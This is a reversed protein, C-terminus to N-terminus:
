LYRKIQGLVHEVAEELTYKSTDVEAEPYDPAEDGGPHPGAEQQQPRLGQLILFKGM